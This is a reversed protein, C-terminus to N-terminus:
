INEGTKPEIIQRNQTFGKAYISRKHGYPPYFWNGKLIGVETVEKAKPHRRSGYWELYTCEWLEETENEKEQKLQKQQERYDSVAEQLREDTLEKIADIDLSYFYTVMFHKGTHHWSSIYLCIKKLVEGPLKKLYELRCNLSLEGNDMLEKIQNLIESKKWKSIPKEGNEYAKVANNSMSQGKYGAM